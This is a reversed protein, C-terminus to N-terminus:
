EGGGDGAPVGSEPVGTTDMPEFDDPLNAFQSAVGAPREMGSVDVVDSVESDLTGADMGREYQVVAFRTNIGRVSHDEYQGSEVGQLDSEVIQQATAVYDELQAAAALDEIAAREAPTEVQDAMANRTRGWKEAFTMGGLGADLVANVADEIILRDALSRPARRQYLAILAEPGNATAAALVPALVAAAAAREEAPVSLAARLGSEAQARADAALHEAKTLSTGAATRADKVWAGVTEEIGEPTFYNSARTNEAHGRANEVEARAQELAKRAYYRANKVKNSPM